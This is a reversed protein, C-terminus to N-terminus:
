LYYMIEKKFKKPVLVYLTTLEELTFCENLMGNDIMCKIVYNMTRPKNEEFDYASMTDGTPNYILCCWDFKAWTCYRNILEYLPYNYKM